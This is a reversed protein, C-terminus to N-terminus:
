PRDKSRHICIKNREHLLGIVFIWYKEFNMYRGIHKYLSFWSFTQEAVQTNVNKTVKNKKSDFLKQCRPDKHGKIHLRDIVVDQKSLILSAKTSNARIPNKVFASWHCGDDYGTVTKEHDIEPYREILYLRHFWLQSLSESRECFM